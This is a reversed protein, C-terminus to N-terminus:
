QNDGRPKIGYYITEFISQKREEIFRSTDYSDKVILIKILPEALFYYVCAGIITIMLQRVNGKIINGDKQANELLKILKVPPISEIAKTINSIQKNLVAGGESLERCMFSVFKPNDRLIDIYMYIFTRLSEEFPVDAELLINIQSFYRVFITEFIKEYLTEKNRFYYHLLAKNVGARNAIDQMRAGSRGKEIFVDMAAKIILEEKSVDQNNM